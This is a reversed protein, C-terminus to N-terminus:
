PVYLHRPPVPSTAPRCPPPRPRATACLFCIAAAGVRLVRRLAHATRGLHAMHQQQQQARLGPGLREGRGGTQGKGGGKRTGWALRLAAAAKKCTAPWRREVRADAAAMLGPAARARARARPLGRRVRALGVEAARCLLRRQGAAPRRRRRRRRQGQVLRRRRQRGGMPRLRRRAGSRPTSSARSRRRPTPSAGRGTSSSLTLSTCARPRRRAPHILSSSPPHHPHHRVRPSSPPNSTTTCAPRLAAAALFAFFFRVERATAVRTVLQEVPETARGVLRAALAAESEAAVFVTTLRRAPLLRRVAAAGQVDLRLVVDTGRALAAEIQDLPVGKYEGYVVAHELLRGEQIWAEFEARSVFFYDRGHQEGPRPASAPLRTRQPQKPSLPASHTSLRAAPSRRQGASQGGM